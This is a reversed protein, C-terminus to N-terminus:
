QRLVPQALQELRVLDTIVFERRDVEVLGEIELRRIV